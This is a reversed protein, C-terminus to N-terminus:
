GPERLLTFILRHARHLGGHENVTWQGGEPLTPM